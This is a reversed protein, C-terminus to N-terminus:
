LRKMLETFKIPFESSISIDAGIRKIDLKYDALFNLLKISMTSRENTDFNTYDDTILFVRNNNKLSAEKIDELVDPYQKLKDVKFFRLITTINDIVITKNKISSVVGLIQKLAKVSYIHRIIVNDIDTVQMSLMDISFNPSTFLIGGDKLMKYGFVTKDLPREGTVVFLGVRSFTYDLNSKFQQKIYYSVYSSEDPPLVPNSKIWEKFGTMENSNLMDVM